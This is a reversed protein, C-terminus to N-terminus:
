AAVKAAAGAEVGGAGGDVVFTGGAFAPVIEMRANM